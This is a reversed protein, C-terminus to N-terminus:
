IDINVQEGIEELLRRLEVYNRTTKGKSRSKYATLIAFLQEVELLWESTVHAPVMRRVHNLKPRRGGRDGGRGKYKTKTSSM